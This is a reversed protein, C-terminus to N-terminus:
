PSGFFAMFSWFEIKKMNKFTNKIIHGICHTWKLVKQYQLMEVYQTMMSGLRSVMAIVSHSSPAGLLRWAVYSWFAGKKEEIKKIIHGAYHTRKIVKQHQSMGVYVTLM